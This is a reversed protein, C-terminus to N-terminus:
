LFCPHTLDMNLYSLHAEHLSFSMPKALFNRRYGGNHESGAAILNLPKRATGEERGQPLASTTDLTAQSCTVLKSSM